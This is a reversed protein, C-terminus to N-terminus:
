RGRASLVRRCTGLTRRWRSQSRLVKLWSLGYLLLLEPDFPRLRLARRLVERAEDEVGAEVFLRADHRLRYLLIEPDAELRLRHKDFFRRHAEVAGQLNKG